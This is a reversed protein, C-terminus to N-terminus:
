LKSGRGTNSNDGGTIDIGAARLIADVIKGVAWVKEEEYKRAM